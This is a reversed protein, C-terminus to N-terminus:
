NNRMFKLMTEQSVKRFRPVNDVPWRLDELKHGGAVLRAKMVMNDIFLDEIIMAIEVVITCLMLKLEEDLQM